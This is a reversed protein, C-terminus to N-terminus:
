RQGGRGQQYPNDKVRSIWPAQRKWYNPAFSRISTSGWGPLWLLGHGNEFDMLEQPLLVRREVQQFNLGGGSNRGHSAGQGQNSTAGQGSLGSGDHINDGFNVGDSLNVGQQLITTVGCRKSMWEATFLDGPPGLTAVIGAQGAYMEWEEDFLAKLQLASQLIPMLQVGYGRVLSWM